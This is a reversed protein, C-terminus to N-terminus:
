IAPKDLLEIAHNSEGVRLDILGLTTFRALAHMGPSNEGSAAALAANRCLLAAAYTRALSTALNRAGAQSSEADSSRRPLGETIRSLALRIDQLPQQMAATVERISTPLAHRLWFQLARDTRFQNALAPAVSHASM